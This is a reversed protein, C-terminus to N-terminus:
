RKRTLRLWLDKGGYQRFLLAGVAAVLTLGAVIMAVSEWPLGADSEPKTQVPAAFAQPSKSPAVTAATTPSPTSTAAPTPTAVPANAKTIRTVLSASCTVASGGVNGTGNCQSVTIPIASSVSSGPDVTCHVAGGGGNGSGNCQTVTAGAAAAIPGCDVVGGGGQGSGVCQNVTTPTLPPAGSTDREISNTISVSCSIAHAADNDSSNCQRVDTVLSNSRTTFTGNPSSCPGLACFRSVTTTSGTTTGKITNVVTVTCTMATTAGETAPGHANCQDVVTSAAAATGPLAAMGALSFAGTFLVLATVLTRWRRGSATSQETTTDTRM